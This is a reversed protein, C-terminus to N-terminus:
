SSAISVHFANGCFPNTQAKAHGHIEMFSVISEAPKNSVQNWWSWIKRVAQVEADNASPEKWGSQAADTLLQGISLPVDFAM